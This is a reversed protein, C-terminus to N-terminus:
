HRSLQAPYGRLHSLRAVNRLLKQASRRDDAVRM